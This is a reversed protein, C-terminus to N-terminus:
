DPPIAQYMLDLDVGERRRIARAVFWWAMGIGIILFPTVATWVPHVNGYNEHWNLLAFYGFASVLCAGVGSIELLPIGGPRWEAPSGKYLDPRRRKMVIGSIGTAFISFLPFLGALALVTIFSSGYAAWASMAMSLGGAIGISIVPAHTRENVSAVWSPLLREFSYVFLGRQLIVLFNNILPPVWFLFIVAIICILVENRASLALLFSFANLDINANIGLNGAIASITFNQGVAQFFVILTLVLCLSQIVGAGVFSRMMQGRQSARRTEAALYTGYFCWIVIGLAQFMSGITNSTSYGGESPYLGTGAGAEVVKDYQGAGAYSNFTAEFSSRSTFILIVLDILWAFAFVVLLLTMTRILVRTGFASIVMLIAISIVATAFVVNKHDFSFYNGWDTFTDSGTVFGIVSFTPALGLTAMWTAVLGVVLPMVAVTCLNAGFGLAPHLIRSNFVYDGGVKPMTATMLAFLIWVAVSALASIAIAAVLNTRPFVVLLFTSIFLGSVLPTSGTFSYTIQDILSLERVLGTANRTYLKGTGSSTPESM